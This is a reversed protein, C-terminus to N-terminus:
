ESNPTSYAAERARTESPASQVEYRCRSTFIEANRSARHVQIGFPRNGRIPHTGRLINTLQERRTPPTDSTLGRFEYYPLLQVTLAFRLEIPNASRRCM